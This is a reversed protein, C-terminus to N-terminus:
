ADESEKQAIFAALRRKWGWASKNTKGRKGTVKTPSRGNNSAFNGPHVRNRVLRGAFTNDNNRQM